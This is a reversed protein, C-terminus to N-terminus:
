SEVLFQVTRHEFGLLHLINKEEGFRGARCQSGDLQAIRRTGAKKELPFVPSTTFSVAIRRRNDM